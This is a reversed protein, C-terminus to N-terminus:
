KIILRSSKTDTWFSAHDIFHQDRTYAINYYRLFDHSFDNERNEGGPEVSGNVLTTCIYDMCQSYRTPSFQSSLSLIGRLIIM